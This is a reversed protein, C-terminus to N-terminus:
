DYYFRESLIRSSPVGDSLLAKEIREILPLPGCIVHLWDAADRNRFAEALAAEDIVGTRGRWDAPPEMLFHEVQLDMRRAAEQLEERYVIQDAARNGYLLMVPRPDGSERLERLISLIPAIGVGGAYLAIGAGGRGAITMNGHPGDVYARTGTAIGGLSRTFDGVEKIVFALEGRQSPASAISFPNEFLSFPSNGINLWVFQGAEFQIAEGRDPAIVVEWTRDAIRRLSRVTYPHGIQWLPKLVYVWVLTTIAIVLMAIWFWTLLPAESYRGARLVHVTGFVAVILAAFGHSARWAEYGGSHKERFMGMLVLVILAIWAVLGTLVGALGFNLSAQRTVDWVMPSNIGGGTYLFPHLILALTLMRAMLQHVRMTADIGIHSSIFRFRGSLLFEM